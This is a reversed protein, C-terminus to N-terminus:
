ICCILTFFTRCVMGAADTCVLIRISGDKFGTMALERYAHSHVANYPRIMGHLNEPLLHRIHDIMEAGAAISDVYIWSKKIQSASMVKGHSVIFDIDTYAKMTHRLTRVVLSVNLRDNGTNLYVDESTRFQLKRMVDNAVRLTLTASLAVFPTNTPLFARVTGIAAYKKRFSEGWHSICHAEDVIVSYVRSTFAQKRLVSAVFQRSLLMEPSLLVIQFTASVIEQKRSVTNASYLKDQMGTSM